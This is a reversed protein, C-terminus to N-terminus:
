YRWGNKSRQGHIISSSGLALDQKVLSLGAVNHFLSVIASTFDCKRLINNLNIWFRFGLLEAYM